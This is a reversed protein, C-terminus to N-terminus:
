SPAGGLLAIELARDFRQRLLTMQDVSLGQGILSSVHLLAITVLGVPIVIWAWPSQELMRQVYGYIGAGCMAFAALFYFFMVMSWVEPRPAFRCFLESGRGSESECVQVSLHPSWFRRQREDITFEVCQGASVAHGRLEPSNIAARIKSILEDATLPVSVTFTPQMKLLKV